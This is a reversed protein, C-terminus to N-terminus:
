MNLIMEKFIFNLNKSLKWNPYDYSFKSYDTYYCIHDGKRAEGFDISFKLGSIEEIIKISELISCSNNKGGGINYVEGKKPNLFFEHFANVLDFSHMNDRVQKGKHGYIIYKKKNKIVKCMYNLFGHLEVGKQKKGTVCGCRFCSTKIGYYKGYEQVMLDAATKSVGFPSHVCQDLSMKENIGKLFFPDDFEFRQKLERLKIKNPNDGYVKNTSVFIFVCDPCNKRTGELLNLTGVANIKFDQDPILSSKDHSPQAACHIILDPQIKLIIKEILPDTICCNIHHYNKFDTLNKLNKMISANKGFYTFRSNNDIGWVEFGLDLYFFVSESGILGCSGTILAKKYKM